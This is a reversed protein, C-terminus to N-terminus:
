ALSLFAHIFVQVIYLVHVLHHEVGFDYGDSIFLELFVLTELLLPNFFLLFEVEHHFNLSELHEFNFFFTFGLFCFLSNAALLNNDVLDL